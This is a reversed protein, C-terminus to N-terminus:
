LKEMLLAKRSRSVPVRLGNVLTVTQKDWGHVCATNIVFSRHCQFLLESKLIDILDRLSKRTVLKRGDVLHIQAYVHDSKICLIEHEKVKHNKHGDSIVIEANHNMGNNGLRYATEVTTWLTEKQIPKALYGFPSTELALKLVRKDYQSTLFVFPTIPDQQRLYQAIDIGSKDGYLRIDLIVLDPKEEHFAEIAEEYSICIAPVRHDREELYMRIMEAILIEDEVVLIRLPM